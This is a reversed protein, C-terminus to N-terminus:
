SPMYSNRAKRLCLLSAIIGGYLLLNAIINTYTLIVKYYPITKIINWFSFVLIYSVTFFLLGSAIWFPPHTTLKVKSYMIAYVFYLGAAVLMLILFLNAAYSNLYIFSGHIFYTVLLGAPVMGLLVLNVRASGASLSEVYFVYLFFACQLPLFINYLFNNNIRWNVWLLYGTYEVAFTTVLLLVLLKYQKPWNGRVLILGM